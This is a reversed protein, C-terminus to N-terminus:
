EGIDYKTLDLSCAQCSPHVIDDYDKFVYVGASNQYGRYPVDLDVKFGLVKNAKQNQASTAEVIATEYGLNQAHAINEHNVQRIIGAGRYDPHTGSLFHHWNALQSM